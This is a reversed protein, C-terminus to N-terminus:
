STTGAGGPFVLPVSDFRLTKAPWKVVPQAGPAFSYDPILRHFEELVLRVELRALHSGLCRHVGGGFSLHRESREVDVRQPDPHEVTDRNACSLFVRVPTRPPLTVGGLETEVATMRPVLPIPPDLRLLEEVVQPTREPEDVLIRRLEPNEVTRVFSSALAGTVTDLGALVFIFGLGIMEDDTLGGEDKISLLRSLLDDGNGHRRDTIYRSLYEHLEMAPQLDGGVPASGSIDVVDIIGDKWAVLQDRDELPLGFLTLFVQAPYPIALDEVLECSGRDRIGEILSRAQARFAPELLALRKPGFFPDLMRRYRAHDPPDTAIPILPLPSGMMDFALASSFVSPTRLVKEVLRRDTVAVYGDLEFLPGTEQMQEWAKERQRAVPLDDYHFPCRAATSKV